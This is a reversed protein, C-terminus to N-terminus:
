PDVEGTGIPPPASRKLGISRLRNRLDRAFVVVNAFLIVICRVPQGTRGYFANIRNEYQRDGQVCRTKKYEILEERPRRAAVRDRRARRRNRTGRSTIGYILYFIYFFRLDGRKVLGRASPERGRTEHEGSMFGM